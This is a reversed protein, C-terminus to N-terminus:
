DEASAFYLIDTINRHGPNRCIMDGKGAKESKWAILSASGGGDLNYALIAGPCKEAVYEAFEMMTFGSTQRGKGGTVRNRRLGILRGDRRAFPQREFRGGAELPQFVARRGLCGVRHATM